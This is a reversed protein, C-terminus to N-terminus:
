AIAIKGGRVIVKAKGGEKIKREVIKLALEDLIM